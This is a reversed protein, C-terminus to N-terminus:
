TVLNRMRLPLSSKGSRAPPKKRAANKPPRGRGRRPPTPSSTSRAPLDVPLANKRPRGRGRRPPEATIADIEASITSLSPKTTGRTRTTSRARTRPLSLALLEDDLGDPPKLEDVDSESTLFPSGPESFDSADSSEESHLLAGDSMEEDEDSTGVGSSVEEEEESDTEESPYLSGFISLIVGREDAGWSAESEGEVKVNQNKKRSPTPRSSISPHATSSENKHGSTERNKKSKKPPNEASRKRTPNKTTPKTNKKKYPPPADSFTTDSRARKRSTPSAPSAANSIKPTPSDGSLAVQAILQLSSEPSSPQSADPSSTSSHKSGRKVPPPPPVRQFTESITFQALSKAARQHTPKWWVDAENSMLAHSHTTSLPLRFFLGM